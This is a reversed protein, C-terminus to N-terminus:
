SPFWPTTGVCSQRAARRRHQTAGAAGLRTRRSGAPRAPARGRMAAGEPAPGAPAGATPGRIRTRQSPQRCVTLLRGLYPFSRCLPTNRACGGFLHDKYLSWGDRIFRTTEENGALEWPGQPSRPVFGVLLPCSRLPPRTLRPSRAPAFRAAPPAARPSPQPSPLPASRMARPRAQKIDRKESGGGRLGRTVFPPPTKRLAAANPAPSVRRLGAMINTDDLRLEEFAFPLGSAEAKKSM